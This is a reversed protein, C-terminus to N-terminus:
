TQRVWGEGESGIGVSMGELLLVGRWLWAFTEEKATSKVGLLAESLGVRRTMREGLWAVGM